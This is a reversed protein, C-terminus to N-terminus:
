TDGSWKTIANVWRSPHSSSARRSSRSSSTRPTSSYAAGGPGPARRPRGPRGGSTTRSRRGRRCSRGRGPGRGIPKASAAADSEIPGHIAIGHPVLGLSRLLPDPNMMGHINPVRVMVVGTSVTITVKTGPPAQSGAKPSQATVTGKKAKSSSNVTKVLFGAAELGAAADTKSKGVVDPVAVPQPGTSVVIAVASGKQVGAGATPDQSVVTGVSATPDYSETSGGVQLGAATLAVAANERDLGVVQPVPVPVTGAVTLGVADGANRLTGAVPDQAVVSGPAGGAREDYVLQGVKFGSAALAEASQDVTKGKLDPVATGCGTLLALVLM